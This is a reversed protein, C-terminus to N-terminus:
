RAASGRDVPRERHRHDEGGVLRDVGDGLSLLEAGGFEVQHDAILGVTRRAGGDRSSVLGGEDADVVVAVDMRGLAEVHRRSRADVVVRGLCAGTLLVRDEGGHVVDLGIALLEETQTETLRHGATQQGVVLHQDQRDGLVLDGILHLGGQSLVALEREVVGGPDDAAPVSQGLATHVRGVVAPVDLRHARRHGEGAVDPRRLAEGGRERIHGLVITEGESVLGLRGVVRIIRVAGVRIGQGIGRSLLPQARHGNTVHVAGHVDHLAGAQQGPERAVQAPRRRGPLRRRCRFRLPCGHGAPDQGVGAAQRLAHVDRGQVRDHEQGRALGLHIDDLGHAPHHAQRRTLLVAVDDQWHRDGRPHRGLVDQGVIVGEPHHPLHKLRQASVVLAEVGHDVLDVEVPGLRVLDGDNVGETSRGVVLTVGKTSRLGLLRSEVQARQSPPPLGNVGAQDLLDTRPAVPLLPGLIHSGDRGAVARAQGLPYAVRLHRGLELVEQRGQTGIEVVRDGRVGRDVHERLM